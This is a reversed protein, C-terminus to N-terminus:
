DVIELATKRSWANVFRYDAQVFVRKWNATAWKIFRVEEPPAEAPIEARGPGGWLAIAPIMAQCKRQYVEIMPRYSRVAILGGKNLVRRGLNILRNAEALRSLGLDIYVFDFKEGQGKLYDMPDCLVINSRHGHVLFISPWVLNNVHRDGNVATVSQAHIALRPFLGLKFGLVLVRGRALRAYNWTRYVTEPDDEEIKWHRAEAPPIFFAKREEELVIKSMCSIDRPAYTRARGFVSFRTGKSRVITINGSTGQAVPNLSPPREKPIREEDVELIRADEM